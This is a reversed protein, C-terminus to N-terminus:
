IFLSCSCTIKLTEIELKKDRAFKQVEQSLTKFDTTIPENKFSSNELLSVDDYIKKVRRYIFKEVRFQLVLFSFLLVFLVIILLYFYNTHILFYNFM